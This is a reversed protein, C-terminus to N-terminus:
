AAQQCRTCLLTKRGTVRVSTLEHRCRPCSDGRGRANILWGPDSHAAGWHLTARRLVRKLYRHIRHLDEPALHTVKVDPRVGSQFCIEDAYDNGIGAIIKESMLFGKLTLRGAKAALGSFFEETLDESLPDIGLSRLAGAMSIEHERVARVDGESGSSSFRLERGAAFQLRIKTRDTAPATQSELRLLGDDGMDFLLSYESRFRLLVYRGHREISKIPFDEFHNDALDRDVDVVNVDDILVTSITKGTAYGAITDIMREVDPLEIM